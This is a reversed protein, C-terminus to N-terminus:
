PQDRDAQRLAPMIGAEALLLAFDCVREAFSELSRLEDFLGPIALIRRALSRADRPGGSRAARIREMNPDTVRAPPDGSVTHIWAAFILALRDAGRGGLALVSPLLRAHLKLSGGSATQIAQYGLAANRFRDFTTALYEDLDLGEPRDLTAAVEQRLLREVWGCIVPDGAAEAIDARGTLIALLALALHGANFVRLKLDEWPAANSVLQAGVSEWEPRGAPFDDEIVWQRFPECAVPWADVVGLADRVERRQADTTRPVMRDVMSRPFAVHEEIWTTLSASEMRARQLVRARLTAGTGRINDLCLVAFPPVGAARRSALADALLRITPGEPEYGSETVTCTVVRVGSDFLMQRALQPAEPECLCGVISGIVRPESGHELLTYLGGQPTLADRVSPHRLSIGCIGWDLDGRALVEHTYVALHARAFAGLGLHVIGVRVRSRDYPCPRADGM